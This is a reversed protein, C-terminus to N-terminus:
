LPVLLPLRHHQVTAEILNPALNWACGDLSSQLQHNLYNSKYSDTLVNTVYPQKLLKFPFCKCGLM